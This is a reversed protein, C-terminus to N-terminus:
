DWKKKAKKKDKNCMRKNLLNTPLISILPLNKLSTKPIQLFCFKIKLSNLCKLCIKLVQLSLISDRFNPSQIRLTPCFYLIKSYKLISKSIQKKLLNKFDGCTSKQAKLLAFDFIKLWTTSRDEMMKWTFIKSCLKWM